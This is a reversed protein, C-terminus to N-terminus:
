DYDKIIVQSVYQKMITEIDNLYEKQVPTFKISELQTTSYRYNQIVYRRADQIMEGLDHFDILSHKEEVITTRFEYPIPSEIILQISQKILHLSKYQTLDQYQAYTTKIDMAIYDILNRKILLELMKPNSGNTDLKVAYGLSKAIEILDIVNQNLTPEGGSIVIAELQHKRKKLFIIVQELPIGEVEHNVLSRNHCYGCRFNCGTVFVVCAIKGPYDILSTKVLGGIIM